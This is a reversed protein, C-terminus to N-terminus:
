RERPKDLKQLAKTSDEVGPTTRAVWSALSAVRRATEALERPIIKWGLLFIQLRGPLM